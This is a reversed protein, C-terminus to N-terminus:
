LDLIDENRKMPKSLLLDSEELQLLCLFSKLNENEGWDKKKMKNRAKVRSSKFYAEISQKEDLFVFIKENM